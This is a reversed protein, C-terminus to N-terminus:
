PQSEGTAIVVTPATIRIGDLTGTIQVPMGVQILQRSTESGSPDVVHAGSSMAVTYDTQGVSVLFDGGPLNRAVRGALTVLIPAFKAADSLPSPGDQPSTTATPQTSIQLTPATAAQSVAAASGTPGSGRPDVLRIAVVAALVVAVATVALSRARSM